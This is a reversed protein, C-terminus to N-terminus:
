NGSAQQLKDYGKEINTILEYDEVYYPDPAINAILQGLRLEPNNDWVLFLRKIIALREKRTQACRGPQAKSFMVKYAELVKDVEGPKPKRLKAM